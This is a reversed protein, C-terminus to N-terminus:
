SSEKKCSGDSVRRMLRHYTILRRVQGVVSGGLCFSSAVVVKTIILLYLFSDFLFFLFDYFFSRRNITSPAPNSGARSTAV